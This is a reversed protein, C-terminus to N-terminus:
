RAPKTRLLWFTFMVVLAGVIFALQILPIANIGMGMEDLSFYGTSMFVCLLATVMLTCLSRKSIRFTAIVLLLAYPLLGWAQQLLSGEASAGREWANHLGSITESAGAILALAIAIRLLVAKVDTTRQAVPTPQDSVLDSIESM